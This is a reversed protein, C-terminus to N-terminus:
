SFHRTAGRKRGKEQLTLARDGERRSRGVASASGKGGKGFLAHSERKEGFLDGWFARFIGGKRGEGKEKLFSGRKTPPSHFRRGKKGGEGKRGLSKRLLDFNPPFSPGSGEGPFRLGGRGKKKKSRRLASYFSGVHVSGRKERGGKKGVTTTVIDRGEGGVRPCLAILVRSIRYDVRGEAAV